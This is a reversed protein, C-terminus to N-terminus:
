HIVPPDGDWSSTRKGFPRPRETVRFYIAIAVLIPGPALALWYIGKLNPWTGGGEIWLMLTGVLVLAAWLIARYISGWMRPRGIRPEERSMWGHPM